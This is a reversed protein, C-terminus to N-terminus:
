KIGNARQLERVYVTIREVDKRSMNPQAPMSGYRWHHAPAGYKAALVFAYDGHNGNAYIRHVLPPGRDSGAANVGHCSECNQAYLVAGARAEASLTPVAVQKVRHSSTSSPTTFYVVASVGGTVVAAAALMLITGKM